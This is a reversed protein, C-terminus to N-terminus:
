NNKFFVKVITGNPINEQFSIGANIKKSLQIVMHLGLGYKRFVLNEREVSEFVQTYYNIQSESMGSGTDSIEIEVKNEIVTTKIIIKGNITNKVANDIINHLIASLINKNTKTKLVPNALNIITTNKDSAIEEFLLKKDEVIDYLSYADSDLESDEKYLDNYEKLNLTFKFLQESSKYIGDFYKKQIEPDETDNLKQSLLAIFKVPTMIDHSISEMIKQQYESENRLQNKTIELKHSTEQLEQNSTYLNNKLKKNKIKQFNTRVQIILLILASFLLVMVIKCIHTQYFYPVVEVFIKKYAFGGNEGVLFRITLTYNGPEINNFSYRKDAKIPKWEEDRTNDLKAELYLNDIDYYYPIDLFVDANKFDSKLRLKDKFHLIENGVQAREVFLLDKKPYHSKIEQPKFFVFGEMSPFVFEGDPLINGSPNSSGNFENNLLGYENTYRYYLVRSKKQAYDLLMKKSVKFLGNNSSIWFFGQADELIHHANFLYNERDDPMKTAINDKILYFGKNYTTFWFNGDKTNQIEKIPLGLAIHKIIKNKSISVLFIGNSTGVYLIDQNYAKVFNINDKFRFTSKAKRFQDNDYVNLDYNSLHDSTSTIYYNNSKYIGLISRGPFAISDRKQFNSTKYRRNLTFDLYLLNQSDDYLAFRKDYKINSKFIRKVSNKSFQLGERTIVSNSTYPLAEYVFEGSFPINKQPIYFNSLNIVNLGKVANGFYMKNSEEDFFMCYLFENEINDYHLLFTLTPNGNVIKSIYINGKNIVFVQKTGQHWYIRSKPDNYLSPKEDYNVLGNKLVMTRRRKPDAIYVIGNQEFANKLKSHPFNQKYVTTKSANKTQYEIQHNDFLYKGSDTEIYYFDVDPFFKSIFTNKYFRKYQIKNIFTYTKPVKGVPIMKATRDAILICENESNNFCTMGNKGYILFDNFSLSSIKFDNYLIFNAGDFRVIGGDTALWIFGFKDKAIDKISNQPLGETMGYWQSTTRQCDLTLSLFTFVLFCFKMSLRINLKTFM